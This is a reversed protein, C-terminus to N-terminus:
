AMDVPDHRYEGLVTLSRTLPTIKALAAHLPAGATDLVLYFRYQWPLGVIPRSQLKSLNINETALITLIEALAGPTHSTTMVLSTRDADEPPTSGPKVVLFRTFNAQNDEINKALVPVGYHAAAETSAIAAFHPNKENAIFQVAGATDHHEIRAADPFNKDLYAECQALAVPHSYIHTVDAGFTGILNQRIPLHIEGIIPYAYKELLDYVPNISGTLTNEIAVVGADAQGSDIAKFVGSFTDCPVFEVTGGFWQSAATHHFSAIEGQIAVRM